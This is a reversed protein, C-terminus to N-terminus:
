KTFENDWKTTFYTVFDAPADFYVGPKAPVNEKTVLQQKLFDLPYDAPPDKSFEAERAFVQAMQDMAMWATASIASEAVADVQGKRILELNALDGQSGLILPREPYQKTGYKSAVVPAVSVPDTDVALSFAGLDPHQAITAAAWNSIDSLNTFDITHKDIVELEPDEAIGEFFANMRDRLGVNAPYQSVAITGGDEMTDVLYEAMLHGKEPQSEVVGQGGYLLPSPTVVGGVNVWPIGRSKARELQPKVAPPEISLSFIVDPNQSLLTNACSAWKVPDGGGDCFIPEWGLVKAAEAFADHDRQIAESAATFEIVGFKKPELKVPEGLEEASKLGAEKAEARKQASGSLQSVEANTDDGGGGCGSVVIAAALLGAILLLPGCRKLWAADASKPLLM